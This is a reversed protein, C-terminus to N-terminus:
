WSSLALMVDTEQTDAAVHKATSLLPLTSAEVAM